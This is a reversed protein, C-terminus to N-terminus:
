VPTVGKNATYPTSGSEETYKKEEAAYKEKLHFRTQCPLSTKHKEPTQYGQKM